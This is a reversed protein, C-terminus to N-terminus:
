EPRSLDKKKADYSPSLSSCGVAADVWYTGERETRLEAADATWGSRLAKGSGVPFSIWTDPAADPSAGNTIAYESGAEILEVLMRISWRREERMEINKRYPYM